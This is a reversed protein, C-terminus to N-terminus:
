VASMVSKIIDPPLRTRIYGCWFLRQQKSFTKRSLKVPLGDDLDNLIRRVDASVIPIFMELQADHAIGVIGLLAKVKDLSILNLM